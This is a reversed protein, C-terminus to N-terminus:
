VLTPLRQISDEKTQISKINFTINLWVRWFQMMMYCFTIFVPQITIGESIHALLVSIFFIIIIKQIDFDIRSM